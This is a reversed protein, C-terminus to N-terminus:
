YMDGYINKSQSDFRDQKALLGCVKLGELAGMGPVLSDLTVVGFPDCYIEELDSVVQHSLFSLKKVGCNREYLHTKHKDLLNSLAKTLSSIASNRCATRLMDSLIIGSMNALELAFASFIHSHRRLDAPIANIHQGSFLKAHCDMNTLFELFDEIEDPFPYLPRRSLCTYERFANFVTPRGTFRNLLAMFFLEGSVIAKSRCEASGDKLDLISLKLACGRLLLTSVDYSRVPMPMSHCRYITPLLTSQPLPLAKLKGNAATVIHRRMYRLAGCSMLGCCHAMIDGPSLPAVTKSKQLESIQACASGPPLLNHDISQDRVHQCIFADIFASNSPDSEVADKDNLKTPVTNSSRQIIISNQSKHDIAYDAFVSCQNFYKIKEYMLRTPFVPVLIFRFHQEEKFRSLRMHEKDTFSSTDVTTKPGTGVAESCHSGYSFSAFYYYGIFLASSNTEEASEDVMNAVTDRDLKKLVNM